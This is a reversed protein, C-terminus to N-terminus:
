PRIHYRLSLGGLNDGVASDFIWLTYQTSGTLVVPGAAQALALATAASAGYASVYHDEIVGELSESKFRARWDSYEFWATYLGAYLNIVLKDSVNLGSITVGVSSTLGGNTIANLNLVTTPYQRPPYKIPRIAIM